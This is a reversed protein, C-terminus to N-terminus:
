YRTCCAGKGKELWCINVPRNGAYRLNLGAMIQSAPNGSLFGAPTPPALRFFCLDILASKSGCGQL